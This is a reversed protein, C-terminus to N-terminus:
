KSLEIIKKKLDNCKIYNENQLSEVFKFYLYRIEQNPEIKIFDNLLKLVKTNSKSLFDTESIFIEPDNIEMVNQSNSIRNEIIDKLFLIEEVIKIIKNDM